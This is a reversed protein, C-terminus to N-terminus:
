YFDPQVANYSTTLVAFQVRAETLRRRCSQRDMADRRSKSAVEDEWRERPRGKTKQMKSDVARKPLSTDPMRVVKGAWRLRQLRVFESILTERYM